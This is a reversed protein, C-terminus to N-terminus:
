LRPDGNGREEERPLAQEASTKKLSSRKESRDGSGTPGGTTWAGALRAEEGKSKWEVGKGRHSRIRIKQLKGKDDMFGEIKKIQKQEISQM